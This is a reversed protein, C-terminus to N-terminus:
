RLSAAISKCPSWITGTDDLNIRIRRAVSADDSEVQVCRGVTLKSRDARTDQQWPQHTIWKAFQSKGDLHLSTIAGPGAAVQVSNADVATVIGTTAVSGARALSALM